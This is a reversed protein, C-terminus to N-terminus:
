GRGPCTPLLPAAGAAPGRGPGGSRARAPDRRTRRSRSRVPWARRLSRPAPIFGDAEPFLRQVNERMKLDRVLDVVRLDQVVRRLGQQGLAVRGPASSNNRWASSFRSRMRPLVWGSTPTVSTPRACTVAPSSRRHEPPAPATSVPARWGPSSRRPAPLPLRPRPARPADRACRRRGWPPSAKM